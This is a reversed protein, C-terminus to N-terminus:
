CYIDLKKVFIPSNLGLLSRYPPNDRLIDDMERQTLIRAM